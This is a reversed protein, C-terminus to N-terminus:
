PKAIPRSIISLNLSMREEMSMIRSMGMDISWLNTDESCTSLSSSMRQRQRYLLQLVYEHFGDFHRGFELYYNGLTHAFLKLQPGTLLQVNIGQVPRNAEALRAGDLFQPSHAFAHFPLIFITVVGLPKLRKTTSEEPHTSNRPPPGFASAKPFYRSFESATRSGDM